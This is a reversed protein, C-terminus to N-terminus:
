QRQSGILVQNPKGQIHSQDLASATGVELPRELLVDHKASQRELGDQAALRVGPKGLMGRSRQLSWNKKEPASLMKYDNQTDPKLLVDLSPASIQVALLIQAAGTM